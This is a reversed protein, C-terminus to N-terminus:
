WRAASRIIRAIEADPSGKAVFGVAGARSMDLQAAPTDHASIGVIRTTPAAARIEIAAHVGGGGPMDFDLVVVDPRRLAALEIAQTADEAQGVLDLGEERQALAALTLRIAPDDDAILIRIARKAADADLAKAEVRNRGAAKAAYLAEDAAAFLDEPTCSGDGLGSVGASVTVVGGEPHPLALAEIAVRLREAAAIATELTQEPLLVVFEEGGYRYVTDGSRAADRLTHAVHRLVDDGHMHGEADNYAKFRDVDFIAVCYAHGYREVRACVGDLDESLRLRNGIGTLPDHRADAHLQRHLGTVRAAAILKRELDAPDLPKSVVDDAGAEMAERAANEDAAGTLVVVYTYGDGPAARIRRALETGDLGPMQWDTIVVDPTHEEYLRWAEDGDAGVTPEHGLRAVASSVLLRTGPEDDAILIKM